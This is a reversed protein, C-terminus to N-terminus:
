SKCATFRKVVLLPFDTMAMLGRAIYRYWLRQWRRGQDAGLVIADCGHEAATELITTIGGWPALIEEASGAMAPLTGVTALSAPVRTLYRLAPVKCSPWLTRLRLVCIDLCAADALTLAYELAADAGLSGDHVVLLRSWLPAGYSAPPPQSVVLVPQLARAVVQRALCRNYPWPWGPSAPAGVVIVDCGAEDATQMLIDPIAGWRSTVATIMEGVRAAIEQRSLQTHVRLPERLSWGVTWWPNLSAGPDQYVYQLERRVQRAATKALGSIVQGQFCVTGATPQYIGLITKGLTSKGCGSEGVLGFTEGPQVTFDVGDVARLWGMTRKPFGRTIPFHKTLSNVELIASM